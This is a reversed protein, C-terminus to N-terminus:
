LSGQVQLSRLKFEKALDPAALVVGPGLTAASNLVALDLNDFQVEIGGDSAEVDKSAETWTPLKSLEKHYALKTRISFLRAAVAAWARHAVACALSVVKFLAALALLWVATSLLLSCLFEHGRVIEGLLPLMASILTEGPLMYADGFSTGAEALFTLWTRDM